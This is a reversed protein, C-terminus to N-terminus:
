WGCLEMLSAQLQTYHGARLLNGSQNKKKLCACGSVIFSGLRQKKKYCILDTSSNTVLFGTLRCQNRIQEPNRLQSIYNM